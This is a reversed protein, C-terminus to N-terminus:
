LLMSEYGRAAGRFRNHTRQNFITRPGRFARVSSQYIKDEHRSFPDLPDDIGSGRMMAGYLTEEAPEAKKGLAEFRTSSSRRLAPPSGRLAAYTSATSASGPSSLRTSLGTSPRSGFHVSGRSSPRSGGGALTSGYGGGTTVLPPPSARRTTM